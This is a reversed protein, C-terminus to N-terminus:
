QKVFKAVRGGKEGRVKVFYIGSSLASVNITEVNSQFIEANSWVKEGLVNYIEVSEIAYQGNCIALQNTAPNPFIYLSNDEATMPSTETIIPAYCLVTRLLTPLVTTYTPTFSTFGSSVSDQPTITTPMVNYVTATHSVENCGSVAATDTKVLYIQPYAGASFSYTTGGFLFGDPVVRLSTGSETNSGGYNRSWQVSGASDVKILYMDWTGFSVPINYSGGILLFGGDATPYVDGPTGMEAYIKFWLINGSTDTKMLFTKADSNGTVFGQTYGAIFYSGNVEKTWLGKEFDPGGYVKFWIRNGFNDTKVFYIDNSGLLFSQSEGTMIFGGDSTQDAHWGWDWNSGGYTRGWLINGSADTLCMYMDYQGGTGGASRGSFILKEETQRVSHFTNSSGNHDTRQAWVINGSDDAKLIFGDRSLTTSGFTFGTVIFCSDPTALVSFVSEDNGLNWRRSWLMNGTSDTRLMFIDGPGGGFLQYDSVTGAMMYGHDYTMEVSTVNLMLSDKHYVQQFQIQSYVNVWFMAALPLTIKKM